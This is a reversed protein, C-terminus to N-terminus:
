EPDCVGDCFTDVIGQRLWRDTQDHSVSLVRVWDHPDESLDPDPPLNVKPVEPVDPFRFEVMVNQDMLPAFAEEVGWVPRLVPMLQVAGVTRAMYHAGYPSVQHDGQAVHMLVHHPPTNPLPDDTLYPAYGTPNLRDWEIQALAIMMNTNIQGEYRAEIIAFFPTFDVSRKLLLSYPMGPEGLLGRTVDTSLAMYVMGMIGGQSDGRYYVESPDIASGAGFDVAPDMFFSGKMMRMALLSNLMGQHMRQVVHEWKRFDNSLMDVIVAEDDEAFGVLDVALTVFNKANALEALYGNRGENRSGLLGHGNQLLAGPAATTAAHPIQVLVDFWAEGNQEPMGDGGFIMTAGADPSAMYLPVKMKVHIRRKIHPNPDEEISDIMYEPGAEGVQALAEDRMHLMWATNNQRSATTFDWALQLARTDYGASALKVLIDDYLARRAAVSPDPHDIGDRLAGFIENPELLAGREDVVNRIAVIYRTADRLRVVPQIFFTRDADDDAHMDLEAFHPVPLGTEADLLVTPSHKKLSLGIDDLSALGTVTAGPLHTMIQTGPSFGDQDALMEPDAPEGTKNNVPLTTPRLWLRKGTPTEAATTWVDSPFPFACATPVMPDCDAGALLDGGFGAGGSAGTGGQGASGASTTALASDDDGCSAAAALALAGAVM